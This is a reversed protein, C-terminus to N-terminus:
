APPFSPAPAANSTRMRPSRQGTRDIRTTMGPLRSSPPPLAHLHRACHSRNSSPTRPVIGGSHHTAREPSGRAHTADASAPARSGPVALPLHACLNECPLLHDGEVANPRDCFTMLLWNMPHTKSCMLVRFPSWRPSRTSRHPYLHPPRSADLSSGSRDDHPPLFARLFVQCYCHFFIRVCFSAFVRWHCCSFAVSAHV